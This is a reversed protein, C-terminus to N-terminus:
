IDLQKSTYSGLITLDAGVANLETLVKKMREDSMTADFEIFFQMVFSTNPLFSSHLTSINIAQEKFPLLADVLSGAKQSTKLLATTKDGEVFQPAQSTVKQLVLFRTTNDTDDQINEAVPVLGYLEGAKKSAIAAKQLQGSKSVLEASRATDDEEILEVNPLNKTLFANCQGIAVPQSHIETITKLTAGPLALLQHQVALYDEGVICVKNARSTLESFANPVFGYRNNAIAIVGHTVQEAELAIFVDKFTNLYAISVDKGFYNQAVQEHYSGHTGQIGVVPKNM